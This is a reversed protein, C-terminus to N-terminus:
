KGIQEGGGSGVGGETHESASPFGPADRDSGFESMVFARSPKRRPPASSLKSPEGAPRDPCPWGASSSARQTPCLARGQRCPCCCTYFVLDSSKRNKKQKSKDQNSSCDQSQVILCKKQTHSQRIIEPNAFLELFFGELSFVQLLKGLSRSSALSKSHERQM